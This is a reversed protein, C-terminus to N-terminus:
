MVDKFIESVEINIGEIASEFESSPTYIGILEMESNKPRYVEVSHNFIDVIWYERVGTKGYIEKKKGRDHRATSPSLVEVVLDPAGHVGKEDIIEPNCIVIVDPIYNDESTLYVDPCDNFVDCDTDELKKTLMFLIQRAVRIHSITPRPSMAYRVGGILQYDVRERFSDQVVVM